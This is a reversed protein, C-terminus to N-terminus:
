ELLQLLEKREKQFIQFAYGQKQCKTLSDYVACIHERLSEKDNAMKGTNIKSIYMRYFSHLFTNYQKIFQKDTHGCLLTYDSFSFRCNHPLLHLPSTDSLEAFFEIADAVMYEFAETWVTAIKGTQEASIYDDFKAMNHITEGWAEFLFESDVQSLLKCNNIAVHFYEVIRKVSNETDGNERMVALNALKCLYLPTKYSDDEICKECLECAEEFCVLHADLDPSESFLYYRSLRIYIPILFMRVSFASLYADDNARLVDAAKKWLEIRASDGDCLRALVLHTESLLVAYRVEERFRPQCIRIVKSLADRATTFDGNNMCAQGLLVAHKAIDYSYDQRYDAQLKELFAITLNLTEIAGYVYNLKLWLSAISYFIRSHLLANEVIDIAALHEAIGLAVFLLEEANALPNTWASASHPDIIARPDSLIGSEAFFRMTTEVGMNHFISNATIREFDIGNHAELEARLRRADISLDRMPESFQSNKPGNIISIAIYELVESIISLESNSMEGSINDAIASLVNKYHTIAEVQHEAKQSAALLRAISCKIKVTDMPFQKSSIISSNIRDLEELCNIAKDNENIRQYLEGLRWLAEKVPIVTEEQPDAKYAHDYISVLKEQWVIAESIDRKDSKGDLYISVLRAIAPAYGEKAASYIMSFGREYNREVDIGNLYALGIYFLHVPSEDQSKGLSPLHEKLAKKLAARNQHNVCRPLMEYQKRLAERNTKLLEVPLLPKGISCANPYECTMVYNNAELLNPTVALVFLDSEKLAEIINDNYNESPTLYEDYWIAVDRCFDIDHIMRMLKQAHARDKKRYSLFLHASFEDHIHKTEDDGVLVAELFKKLKEEYSISTVDHNNKDLYQLAGLKEYFIEDLGSEQMLPLVPINERQAISLEHQMARNPKTLLNTTVPMVFLQMQSLLTDLEDSAYTAEPDRDFWIACNHFRHIDAAIEPLLNYDGPHACFYVKQKKDPSANGPTIYGLNDM